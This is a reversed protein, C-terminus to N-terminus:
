LCGVCNRKTKLKVLNLLFSKFVALPEPSKVKVRFFSARQKFCNRRSDIEQVSLGLKNLWLWLYCWPQRQFQWPLLLNRHTCTFIFMVKQESSFKREILLFDVELLPFQTKNCKKLLLECHPQYPQSKNLIDSVTCTEITCYKLVVLWTKVATNLM